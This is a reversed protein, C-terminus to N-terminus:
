SITAAVAKKKAELRAASHRPLYQLRLESAVAAAVDERETNNFVSKQGRVISDSRGTISMPYSAKALIAADKAPRVSAVKNKTEDVLPAWIDRSQNSSSQQQEEVQEATVIKKPLSSSTSKLPLRPPKTVVKVSSKKFLSHSSPPPIPPPVVSITRARAAAEESQRKKKEKREAELEQQRQLLLEAQLQRLDEEEKQVLLKERAKEANKEAQNNTIALGPAHDFGICSVGRETLLLTVTRPLHLIEGSAKNRVEEPTLGRSHRQQAEVALAAADIAPFARAGHNSFRGSPSRALLRFLSRDAAIASPALGPFLQSNPLSDDSTSGELAFPPLFDSDAAPYRQILAFGRPDVGGIENLSSSFASSGGGGKQQSVTSPIDSYSRWVNEGVTASRLCDALSPVDFLPHILHTVDVPPSPVFVRRGDSGWDFRGGDPRDKSTTLSSSSSTPMRRTKAEPIATHPLEFLRWGRAGHAGVCTFSSLGGGVNGGVASASVQASARMGNFMPPILGGNETGTAAVFPTSIHVIPGRSAHLPPYSALPTSSVSFSHGKVASSSIHAKGKDRNKNNNNGSIDNEQHMFTSTNSKKINRADVVSPPSSSSTTSDSNGGHQNNGCWWLNLFGNLHGTLVAYGNLKFRNFSFSDPHCPVHFVAMATVDSECLFSRVFDGRITVRTRLQASARMWRAKEAEGSLGFGLKAVSNAAAEAAAISAAASASVDIVDEKLSFVLIEHLATGCVLVLGDRSISARTIETGGGGGRREGTGSADPHQVFGASCDSASPVSVDPAPTVDVFRVASDGSLIVGLVCSLTPHPFIQVSSAQGLPARFVLQPLAELEVYSAASVLLDSSRRSADNNNTTNNPDISMFSPETAAREVALAGRSWQNAAAGVSSTFSVKYAHVVVFFLFLSSHLAFNILNHFLTVLMYKFFILIYIHSM